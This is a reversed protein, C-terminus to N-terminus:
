PGALPARSARSRSFPMLPPPCSPARGVPPVGSSSLRRTLPGSRSPSCRSFFFPSVPAVPRPFVGAGVPSSSCTAQALFRRRPPLADSPPPRFAGFRRWCPVLHGITPVPFFVWSWPPSSRPERTYGAIDFLQCNVRGRLLRKPPFAPPPPRKKALYPGADLLCEIWKAIRWIWQVYIHINKFLFEWPRLRFQPRDMIIVGCLVMDDEKKEKNKKYPM